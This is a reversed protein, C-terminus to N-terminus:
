TILLVGLTLTAFGLLITGIRLTKLPASYTYEVTLLM